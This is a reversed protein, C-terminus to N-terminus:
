RQEHWWSSESECKALFVSRTNKETCSEDRFAGNKGRTVKVKISVMDVAKTTAEGKSPAAESSMDHSKGLRSSNDRTPVERETSARTWKAACTDVGGAVVVDTDRWGGIGAVVALLDAERRRLRSASPEVDTVFTGAAGLGALAGRTGFGGLGGLTGFGGLTRAGDFRFAFCFRSSVAEVEAEATGGEEADSAAPLPSL